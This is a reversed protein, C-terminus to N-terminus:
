FAPGKGERLTLSDGGKESVLSSKAPGNYADSRGPCFNYKSKNVQATTLTICKSSTSERVTLSQINAIHLNQARLPITCVNQHM